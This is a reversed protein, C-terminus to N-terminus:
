EKRWENWRWKIEEGRRGQVYRGNVSCEAEREGAGSGYVWVGRTM